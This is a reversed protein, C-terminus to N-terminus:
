RLGSAVPEVVVTLGDSGVVHIPTGRPLSRDDATRASWEEGSAYISGLPELPRRVEGITGAAPTAPQSNHPGIMRRTRVATTTILLGFAAGTGVVVVLLPVAVRVM